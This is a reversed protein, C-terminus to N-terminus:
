IELYFELVEQVNILAGGPTEKVSAVPLFPIDVTFGGENSPELTVKLEKNVRNL